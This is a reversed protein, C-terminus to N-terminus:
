EKGFLKEKWMDLVDNFHSGKCGNFHHAMEELESETIKIEREPVPEQYLMIDEESFYGDIASNSYNFSSPSKWIRDIEFIVEGEEPNRKVPTVRDGFKFKNQKMILIEKTKM